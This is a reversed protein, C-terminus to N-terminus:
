RFPIINFFGFLFIIFSSFYKIFYIFKVKKDATIKRVTLGLVIWWLLSGLLIGVLMLFVSQNEFSSSLGMFLSSFTIITLPNMLTLFFIQLVRKLFDQKENEKEQPLPANFEKYAIYLLFFGGLIEIFRKQEGLFVVFSEIGWFGMVGYLSDAMAAGLGVAFAQWLGEIICVRVFLASIPGFSMAVTLGIFFAELFLNIGSM